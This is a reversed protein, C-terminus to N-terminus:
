GRRLLSAFVLLAAVVFAVDVYPAFPPAGEPWVRGLLVMIGVVILVILIPRSSVVSRRVPTSM